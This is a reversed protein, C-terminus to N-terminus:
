FGGRVPVLFALDLKCQLIGALQDSLGQSIRNGFVHSIHDLRNDPFFVENVHGGVPGVIEAAAATASIELGPEGLLSPGVALGLGILNQGGLCGITDRRAVIAMGLDMIHGLDIVMCPFGDVNPGQEVKGKTDETGILSGIEPFVQLIHIYKM